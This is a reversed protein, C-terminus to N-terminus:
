MDLSFKCPRYTHSHTRRLQILLGLQQVLENIYAWHHYQKRYYGIYHYLEFHFQPKFDIITLQVSDDNYYSNNM